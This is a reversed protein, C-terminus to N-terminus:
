VSDRRRGGRALLKPDNHALSIYFSRADEKEKLNNIIWRNKKGPNAQALFATFSIYLFIFKTFIDTESKSREFWQKILDPYSMIAQKNQEESMSRV